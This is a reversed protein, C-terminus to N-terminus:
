KDFQANIHKWADDRSVEKGGIYYKNENILGGSDKITVGYQSFTDRLKVFENHMLVPVGIIDHEYIKIGREQFKKADDASELYTGGAVGDLQYDSLIEDKLIKEDAM